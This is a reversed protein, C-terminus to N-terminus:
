TQKGKPCAEQDCPEARTLVARMSFVQMEKWGQMEKILYSNDHCKSRLQENKQANREVRSEGLQGKMEEFMVKLVDM